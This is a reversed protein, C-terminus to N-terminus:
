ENINRGSCCGDCGHIGATKDNPDNGVPHGVGHLCVGEWIRRDQRFFLDTIWPHAAKVGASTVTYRGTETRHVLKSDIANQPAVPFESNIPVTRLWKRTAATVPPVVPMFKRKRRTLAERIADPAIRARGKKSPVLLEALRSKRKM